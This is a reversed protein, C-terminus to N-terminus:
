SRPRFNKFNEGDDWLAAGGKRGGGGGKVGGRGGGGGGRGTQSPAGSPPPAGSGGGRGRGRQGFKGGGRNPRGAGRRKQSNMKGSIESINM